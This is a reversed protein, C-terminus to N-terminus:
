KREIGKGERKNRTKKKKKKKKATKMNTETSRRKGQVCNIETTTEKESNKGWKIM